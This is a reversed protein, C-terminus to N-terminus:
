HTGDSKENINRGGKMTQEYGEDLRKVHAAVEMYM